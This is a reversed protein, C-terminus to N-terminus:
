RSPEAYTAASASECIITRILRSCGASRAIQVYASVWKSNSTSSCSSRISCYTYSTAKISLRALFTWVVGLMNLLQNADAPSYAKRTKLLIALFPREKVTFSCPGLFKYNFPLLLCISIFICGPSALDILPFIIFKFSGYLKPGISKLMKSIHNIYSM